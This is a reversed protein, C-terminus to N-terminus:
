GVKKSKAWVIEFLPQFVNEAAYESRSWFALQQTPDVKSDTLSLVLEKGDVTCFTGTIPVEKEDIARVKAIESL